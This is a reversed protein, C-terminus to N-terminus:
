PTRLPGSACFRRALAALVDRCALVEDVLVYEDLGHLGAGGPGFVVSPIGAEGLIAADTWFSLGGRRPARGAAALTDGLADPLPHGAPTEYASRGVLFRASGRFGPDAGRLRSLIAETERVAVDVPEGVVTRRELLLTCADPYTSMERGGQILSAHVSPPGLRPHAPGSQLRRDLDELAGLVRGMRVIADRGELPRSGHAAVGETAVEACSFGKHAVGIVLDTPEAVVAADARWTRVLAETGSSAYGEDSVAAVV